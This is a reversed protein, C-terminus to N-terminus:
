GGKWARMGKIGGKEKEYLLQKVRGEREREWV